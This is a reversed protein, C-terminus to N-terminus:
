PKGRLSSGAVSLSVSRPPHQLSLGAASRSVSAPTSTENARAFWMAPSRFYAMPGTHQRARGVLEDAQQKERFNGLQAQGNLREVDNAAAHSLPPADWDLELQKLQRRIAALNWVHICFGDRSSCVLTTGDPTFAFAISRHQNPDELRAYERGSDADILRAVGSGTEVAIVKGDPSFVANEGEIPENFPVEVWNEVDFRRVRRIEIASSALM